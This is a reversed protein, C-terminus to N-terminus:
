SPTADNHGKCQSTAKCGNCCGHCSKSRGFAARLAMCFAIAIVILIIISAINM